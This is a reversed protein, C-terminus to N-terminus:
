SIGYTLLTSPLSFYFTIQLFNYAGESSSQNCSFYQFSFNDKNMTILLYNPCHLFKFLHYFASTTKYNLIFHKSFSLGMSKSFIMYLSTGLIIVLLIWFAHFQIKVIRSFLSVKYLIEFCSIVYMQLFHTNEMHMPPLSNQNERKLRYWEARWFVSHDLSFYAVLKGRKNNM